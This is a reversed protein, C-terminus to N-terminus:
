ESTMPSYASGVEYQKKKKEIEVNRNALTTENMM